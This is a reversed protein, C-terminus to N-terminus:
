VPPKDNRPTAPAPTSESPVALVAANPGKAALTEPPAEVVTLGTVACWLVSQREDGDVAVLVYGGDENSIVTGKSASKGMTLGTAVVWSVKTGKKM